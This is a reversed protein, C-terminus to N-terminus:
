VKAEKICLSEAHMPSVSEASILLLKFLNDYPSINCFSSPSKM